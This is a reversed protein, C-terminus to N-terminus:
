GFYVHELEDTLLLEDFGGAEAHKCYKLGSLPKVEVQYVLSSQLQVYLM